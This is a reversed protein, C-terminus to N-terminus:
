QSMKRGRGAKTEMKERSIIVDREETSQSLNCSSGCACSFRAQPSLHWTGNRDACASLYVESTNQNTSSVEWHEPDHAELVQKFESLNTVGARRMGSLIALPGEALSCVQDLYDAASRVGACVGHKQWEHDQFQSPSHDTLTCNTDGARCEYCPVIRSPDDAVTPPICPSDGYPPVQPWLGHLIPTPHGYFVAGGTVNQVGEGLGTMLALLGCLPAGNCHFSTTTM